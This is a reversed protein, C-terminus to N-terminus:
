LLSSISNTVSNGHKKPCGTNLQIIKNGSVLPPSTSPSNKTSGSSRGKSELDCADTKNSVIEGLPTEINEDPQSGQFPSLRPSPESKKGGGVLSENDASEVRNVPERRGDVDSPRRDDM